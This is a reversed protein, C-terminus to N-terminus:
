EAINCLIHSQPKTQRRIALNTEVILYFQFKFSPKRSTKYFLFFSVIERPMLISEFEKFNQLGAIM